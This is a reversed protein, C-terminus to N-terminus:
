RGPEPSRGRDPPPFPHTHKAKTYRILAECFASIDDFARWCDVTQLVERTDGVFWQSRDKWIVVEQSGCSYRALGSDMTGVESSVLRFGLKAMTATVMGLDRM